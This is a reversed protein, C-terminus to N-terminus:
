RFNGCILIIVILILRRFLPWLIIVAVRQLGKRMKKVCTGGVSAWILVIAVNQHINRLTLKSLRLAGPISLLNNAVLAIDATEIDVDTGAVGMAIGVDATVLAPEANMGAGILAVQSAHERM